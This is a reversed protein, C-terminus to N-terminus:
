KAVNAAKEARDCAAAAARLGSGARDKTLASRCRAMSEQDSAAQQAPGYVTAGPNAADPLSVFHVNYNCVLHRNVKPPFFLQV